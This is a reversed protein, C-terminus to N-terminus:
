QCITHRIKVIKYHVMKKMGYISTIYWKKKLVSELYFEVNDAYHPFLPSDRPITHDKRDYKEPWLGGRKSVATSSHVKKKGKRQQSSM